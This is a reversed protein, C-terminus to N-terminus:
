AEKPQNEFVSFCWSWGSKDQQTKPDINHHWRYVLYAISFGVAMFTGQDEPGLRPLAEIYQRGIKPTSLPQVLPITWRENINVSSM